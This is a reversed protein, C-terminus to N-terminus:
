ERSRYPDIRTVHSARVWVSPGSTSGILPATVVSVPYGVQIEVVGGRRFGPDISYTVEALSPDLGQDVLAATVAADIARRGEELSISRAADAGAERVAATTGLAGRHLEALVGLAWILPIILLLGLLITEMMAQGRETPKM